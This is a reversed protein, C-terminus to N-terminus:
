VPRGLLKKLFYLFIRYWRRLRRLGNIGFKYLPNEGIRPVGCREMQLRIDEKERIIEFALGLKELVKQVAEPQTGRNELLIYCCGQRDKWIFVPQTIGCVIKQIKPLRAKAKIRLLIAPKWRVYERAMELMIREDLLRRRFFRYDFTYPATFECLRLVELKRHFYSSVCARHAGDLAMWRRDVPIAKPFLVEDPNERGARYLSQLVQEFAELGRKEHQGPEVIFYNQFAEIHRRYIEQAGAFERKGDMAELYILKAMFDFREPCILTQAKVTEFEERAGSVKLTGYLYPYEKKLGQAM